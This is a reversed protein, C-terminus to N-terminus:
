REAEQEQCEPCYDEAANTHWGMERLESEVGREDYGHATATLRVQEICGCKDCTVEIYADSKSM